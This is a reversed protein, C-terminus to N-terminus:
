ELAGGPDDAEVGGDAHRMRELVHEHRGALPPKVDPRFM